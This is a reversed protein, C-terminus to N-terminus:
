TVECSAHLMCRSALTASVQILVSKFFINSGGHHVACQEDGITAAPAPSCTSSRGISDRLQWGVALSSLSLERSIQRDHYVPSKWRRRGSRIKLTTREAALLLNHKLAFYRGSTVPRISRPIFSRRSNVKSRISFLPRAHHLLYKLYELTYYIVKIFPFYYIYFAINFIM